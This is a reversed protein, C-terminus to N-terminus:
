FINEVEEKLHSNCHKLNDIFSGIKFDKFTENSKPLRKFNTYFEKCLELKENDSILINKGIFVNNNYNIKIYRLKIKMNETNWINILTAIYNFRYEHDEDHKLKNSYDSVKRLLYNYVKMLKQVSIMDYSNRYPNDNKDVSFLYRFIKYLKYSDKINKYIVFYYLIRVIQEYYYRWDYWHTNLESKRYPMIEIKNDFWRLLEVVFVDEWTSPKFNFDSFLMKRSLIMETINAHVISIM